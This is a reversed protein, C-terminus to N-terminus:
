PYDQRTPRVVIDSIHVHPPQSIVFLIARAIDEPQLVPGFRENFQQCLEASYHAAAQFETAVIGPEVLSVRVGRPGIERRLSETLAHVAFKTASYVASFPSVHRGVVSGIVVIDAARAPFQEEQVPLMLQAAHRLVALTATVNLKLIEEFRTLDANSVAGGLGRGANAIVISPAAGFAERAAEFVQTVFAANTIDGPVGRFAAGLERELAQLREARRGTGVVTHGAACLARATAEGIGATAGTVVAIRASTHEMSNAGQWM